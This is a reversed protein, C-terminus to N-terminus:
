IITLHGFINLIKLICQIKENEDVILRAICASQGKVKIMEKRILDIITSLASYRIQEHNDM